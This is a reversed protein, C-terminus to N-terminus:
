GMRMMLGALSPIDASRGNQLILGARRLNALERSVAERQSGIRSALEAHTPFASIHIGAGDSSPRGARVIEAILRQSVSMTAMSQLKGTLSRVRHTLLRAVFNGAGPTERMFRDFQSASVVILDSDELATVSASRPRGDIASMEGFMRGAPLNRLITEQGQTGFLSIQVLGSEIFLVDTSESGESLLMQGKRVRRRQGLASLAAVLNPPAVLEAEDFEIWDM